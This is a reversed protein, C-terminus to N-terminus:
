NGAFERVAPPVYTNDAVSGEPGYVRLMINFPGDPVPLWNPEPVGDPLQQAMYISISGDPATVLGSTYSAVVYKNASNPILEISQPTYATVSWFRKAEPIQGAPFTLVYSSASGDLAAGTADKFAQYYAATDIGNGFQIFETISARELYNSGWQGIDTFHIWNTSGVNQLYVDLIKEHASQAGSSFAAQKSASSSFTGDGFLVNFRDALAREEATMPPTNSSEVAVQLQKLFTIPDIKLLADAATKFGVATFFEPAILTAGGTPDSIYDSLPQLLLSRRFLHAEVTQDQGSESFKDARFILNSFNVPM